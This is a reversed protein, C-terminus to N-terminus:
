IFSFGGLGFNVILVVNNDCIEIIHINVDDIVKIYKNDGDQFGVACQM